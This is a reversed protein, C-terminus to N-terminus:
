KVFSPISIWHPSTIALALCSTLPLPLALLWFDGHRTKPGCLSDQRCSAQDGILGPKRDSVGPFSLFDEPTPNRGLVDIPVHSKVGVM